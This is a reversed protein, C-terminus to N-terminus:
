WDIDAERRFRGFRQKAAFHRSPGIPSMEILLPESLCRPDQGHQLDVKLFMSITNQGEDATEFRTNHSLDTAANASSSREQANSFCAMIGFM